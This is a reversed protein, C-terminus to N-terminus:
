TTDGKKKQRQRRRFERAAQARACNASCYLVGEGRYQGAKARGQQHVFLRRCTENRCTHYAGGSTIHNFLQLALVSELRIREGFPQAPNFQDPSELLGVKPSFPELLAELVHKFGLLDTSFALPLDTGTDTEQYQKWIATLRRFTLVWGKFDDLHQLGELRLMAEEEGDTVTGDACWEDIRQKWDDIPLGQSNAVDYGLARAGKQWHGLRGFRDLFAQIQAPDDLNLDALERLYM